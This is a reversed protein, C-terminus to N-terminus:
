HIQMRKSFRYSISSVKLSLNQNIRLFIIANVVGCCLPVLNILFTSALNLQSRLHKLYRIFVIQYVGMVGQFVLFLVMYAKAIRVVHQTTRSLLVNSKRYENMKKISILFLAINIVSFGINVPATFRGANGLGNNFNDITTVLTQALVLIFYSAITGRFLTPTFRRTYDSLFIIRLYRDINTLVAMYATSYIAFRSVGYLLLTQLCTLQRHYLLFATYTSNLMICCHIDVLSLYLILRMSQNRMLVKTSGIVWVVVSNIALGVCGVVLLLTVICLRLEDSLLESRDYIQFCLTTNDTVTFTRTLHTRNICM